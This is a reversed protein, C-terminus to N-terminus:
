KGQFLVLPTCMSQDCSRLIDKSLISVALVHIILYVQRTPRYVYCHCYLLLIFIQLHQSHIWNWEWKVRIKKGIFKLHGCKKPLCLKMIGCFNSEIFLKGAKCTALLKIKHIQHGKCFWTWFWWHNTYYVQYLSNKLKLNFVTFM